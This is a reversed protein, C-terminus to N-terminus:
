KIHQIIESEYFKSVEKTALCYVKYIEYTEFLDNKYSKKIKSKSIKIDLLLGIKPITNPVIQFEYLEGIKPNTITKNNDM